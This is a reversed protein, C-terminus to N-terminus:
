IFFGQKARVYHKCLANFIYNNRIVHGLIKAKSVLDLIFENTNKIRGGGWERIGGDDDRM